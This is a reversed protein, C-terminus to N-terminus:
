GPAVDVVNLDKRGFGNQLTRPSTYTFPVFLDGDGEEVKMSSSLRLRHRAASMSVEEWESRYKTLQDALQRLKEMVRTNVEEASVPGTPMESTVTAVLLETDEKSDTLGVNTCLQAGVAGCRSRGGGLSRCM